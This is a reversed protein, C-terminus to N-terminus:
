LFYFDAVSLIFDLVFPRRVALHLLLPLTSVVADRAGSKSLDPVRGTEPVAGTGCQMGGHSRPPRRPSLDLRLCVPKGDPSGLTQMLPVSFM